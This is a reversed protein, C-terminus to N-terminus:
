AAVGDLVDMVRATLAYGARVETVEVERRRYGEDALMALDHADRLEGFTAAPAVLVGAARAALAEALATVLLDAHSQEAVSAVGQHEIVPQTAHPLAQRSM